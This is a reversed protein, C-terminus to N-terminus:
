AQVEEARANFGRWYERSDPNKIGHRTMELWDETPIDESALVMEGIDVPECDGLSEAYEYGFDFETKESKM